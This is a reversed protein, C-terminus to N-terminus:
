TRAHMSEHATCAKTHAHRGKNRTRNLANANLRPPFPFLGERSASVTRRNGNKYDETAKQPGQDHNAGGARIYVVGRM